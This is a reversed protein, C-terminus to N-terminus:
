IHVYFRKKREKKKRRKLCSKTIYGFSAQFELDKQRLRRLAPIVTTSWV